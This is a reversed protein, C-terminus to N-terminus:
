KEPRAGKAWPCLAAWVATNAPTPVGLEMGLKHVRGSLWELELPKGNELDMLMSSKQSYPQKRFFEVISDADAASFDQGSANAVDINESLLTRMFELSDPHEYVAGIPLRTICTVGSFAVLAIFKQWVVKRPEGTPEIDIGKLRSCADFFAGLTPDDGMRDVVARNVGGPNAIVGPEKIQAGIYIIGEAIRDRPVHRSIMEASDIGNQLTVIRTGTKMLPMLASAAIETDVLKVTFLVIDVPGIESPDNTAHIDPLSVDGFPSEIRLGAARLADLHAGRAVLHVEEGAEALRGGVYGGIAGAGMVAIKM